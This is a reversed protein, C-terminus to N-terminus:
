RIEVTRAPYDILLRHARLLRVGILATPGHLTLARVHRRDGLWYVDAEYTELATESGDALRATMPGLRTLKLREALREPLALAGTFGTDILCTLTTQGNPGAIRLEVLADGRPTVSGALRKQPEADSM